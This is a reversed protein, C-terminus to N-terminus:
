PLIFPTFKFERLYVSPTIATIRRSLNVNVRPRVGRGTWDELSLESFSRDLGNQTAAFDRVEQPTVVAPETFDPAPVGDILLDLTATNFVSGFRGSTTGDIIINTLAIEAFVKDTPPAILASEDFATDLTAFNYSIEEARGKFGVRFAPRFLFDNDVENPFLEFVKDQGGFYGSTSVHVGVLTNFDKYAFNLYPKIPKSTVGVYKASITVVGYQDQVGYNVMFLKGEKLTAASIARTPFTPPPADLFFKDLQADLDARRCIYDINVEVLGTVQTVVNTNGLLLAGSVLSPAFLVTAPM